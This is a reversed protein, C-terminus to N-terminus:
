PSIRSRPDVQEQFLSHFSPKGERHKNCRRVGENEICYEHYTHGCMFHVTPLSLEKDCHACNREDFNKATRKMRNISERMEDIKAVTVDTHGKMTKTQDSQDRLKRQLFPKLVEFKLSRKSKLIELVLLPSLIDREGITKLARLLYKESRTQGELPEM